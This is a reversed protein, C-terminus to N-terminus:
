LTGCTRDFRELTDNSCKFVDRFEPMSLLPWTCRERPSMSDWRESGCSLLCFRKFFVRQAQEWHDADRNSGRFQERLADLAARAARMWSFLSSKFARTRKPQPDTPNAMVSPDSHQRLCGALMSYSFSAESAWWTDSSTVNWRSDPGIADSLAKAMVVGVTAYNVEPTASNIYAVPKELYASPLIITGHVDNYVPWLEAWHRAKEAEAADPASVFMTERQTVTRLAVYSGPFPRNVAAEAERLLYTMNPGALTRTYTDDDSPVYAKYSVVSLKEKAMLATANGFWAPVVNERVLTFMNDLESDGLMSAFSLNSVFNHWRLEFAQDVLDLCLYEQDRTRGSQYRRAYDVRLAQALFIMALYWSTTQAPANDLHRFIGGTQKHGSFLVEDNDDQVLGGARFLRFAESWLGEPFATGKKLVELPLWTVRTESTDFSEVVTDVDILDRAGTIPANEESPSIAAILAQFYLYLGEDTTQARLEHLLSPARYLYLYSVGGQQDKRRTIGVLSRLGTTFSM